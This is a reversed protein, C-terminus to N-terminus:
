EEEILIDETNEQRRWGVSVDGCVKCKIIEVTVNKHIESLVYQCPDLVRDGLRITAGSPFQCKCM